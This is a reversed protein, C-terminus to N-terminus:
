EAPVVTLTVTRNRPRDPFPERRQDGTALTFATLPLGGGQALYRTAVQARALAVPSGGAAPGGPVTVTHGVVTTAADLGALRGGVRELLAAGERSIVLDHPFLGTDFLVEVGGAHRRVRVGPVALRRAIGDLRRDHRAAAARGDSRLDDLRQQLADARRTQERLRVAAPSPRHAGSDPGSLLWAAGGALATGVVAVAAVAVRGARPVSRRGSTIREVTRRGAAADPDGPALVLVRAWCADAEALEGRQAHVRARLDLAAATSADEAGLGDLLRVARDLEGARAAARAQSLTLHLGMASRLPESV